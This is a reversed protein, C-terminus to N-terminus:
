NKKEQQRKVKGTAEGGSLEHTTLSTDEGTSDERNKDQEQQRRIKRNRSPKRAIVPTSQLLYDTIQRTNTPPLFNQLRM